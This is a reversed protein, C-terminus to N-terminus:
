VINKSNIYSTYKMEYNKWSMAGFFIGNAGSIITSILINEIDFIFKHRFIASVSVVVNILIIFYICWFLTYKFKGKERYKTWRIFDKEKM